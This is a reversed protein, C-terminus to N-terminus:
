RENARRQTTRLKCALLVFIEFSRLHAVRQGKASVCLSFCVSFFVCLHRGWYYLNANRRNRDPTTCPRLSTGNSTNTRRLPYFCCFFLCFHLETVLIRQVLLTCNATAFFFMGPLPQAKIEALNFCMSLRRRKQGDSRSLSISLDGGM